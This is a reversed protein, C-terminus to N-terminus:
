DNEKLKGVLNQIREVSDFQSIELANVDIAINFKDELACILEVVAFSDLLGSSFLPDTNKISKTKPFLTNLIELIIISAIPVNSSYNM